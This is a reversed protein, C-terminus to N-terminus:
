DEVSVREKHYEGRVLEPSEVGPPDFDLATGYFALETELARERATASRFVHREQEFEVYAYPTGTEVLSEVMRDAQEPPVVRDEGGQLLLLPADIGDANAAPSRAEYVDAADPLPGVLGDLYRSEFKHTHEVMARLDAVGFYSAGADFVDHFALAALTVFGGASRGRITLRDPDVRGEDVLHRAANLCDEVDVIGWEGRLRDRYSRGYGTSGRYNVDVVAFGRTTFYQITLNLVPDTRSTPGGHAMTVLPPREDGPTEVDPNTPPFYDAHAREGDGTPFTIAEPESLYSADVDVAFSQQLVETGMGDAGEGLTWRVVSEPRTPGGGVALLTDGDARLRPKAFAEIPAPRPEFAGDAPDIVGFQQDDGNQRFTAVRGDPLVAYTSLGFVWQPTGYEADDERVPEPDVEGDDAGPIRYVNWWDTRDSVAFLDGEPGWTPQFMSEEPGGMVTREDALSGGSEIRAVHLETGDWPMRPHDWTTWALSTGDPSVRPFSYFDHGSAVVDPASEEGLDVAVLENVAEGNEEVDEGYHRERVCYVRDEGPVFALDAYRAGREVPPEPTIPTPDEGASTDDSGARTRYLRQDSFRAYVVTDNRVAFDGGGYEHVLTRVDHDTPTVAGPSGDSGQRVVVGRGDEDPRRELWYATESDLELHGLDLGGAAVASASVPSPWEGYSTSM